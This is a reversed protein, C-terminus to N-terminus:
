NFLPEFDNSNFRPISINSDLMISIVFIFNPHDDEFISSHNFYVLRDNADFIVEYQINGERGGVAVSFDPNILFRTHNRHRTITTRELYNRFGRYTAYINFYLSYPDMFFPIVYSMISGLFLESRVHYPLLWHWDSRPNDTFTKRSENEFGQDNEDFIEREYVYTIEDYIWIQRVRGHYVRPYLGIVYFGRYDIHFYYNEGDHITRTRRTFDFQMRSLIEFSGYEGRDVFDIWNGVIEQGKEFSLTEIARGINPRRIRFHRDSCGSLFPIFTFFM